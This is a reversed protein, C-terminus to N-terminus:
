RYGNNFRHKEKCSDCRWPRDSLESFPGLNPTWITDGHLNCTWTGCDDCKRHAERDCDYGDFLARFECDEPM